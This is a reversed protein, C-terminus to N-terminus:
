GEYVGNVHSAVSVTPITWPFLRVQSMKSCATRRATRSSQPMSSGQGQSLCKYHSAVGRCTTSPSIPRTTEWWRWTQTCSTRLDGRRHSPSMVTNMLFMARHLSGDVRWKSPHFGNHVPLFIPSRLLFPTGFGYINDTISYLHTYITDCTHKYDM